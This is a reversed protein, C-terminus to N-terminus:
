KNQSIYYNAMVSDIIVIDVTGAKLQNFADLQSKLMLQEKGLNKKVIIEDGASGKEASIIADSFTTLDKTYKDADSERIVAVQNNALYPLSICMEQSREETITLGNWILDITGNTLLTEKQNWEITQFNVNLTKNEKEGLYKFVAKPLEVDFGILDGNDDNFAIPAYITIGIEVKGSNIIKEWSDDTADTLPNKTESNILLESTLGYKEAITKYETDKLAILADNIKSVFAKDEKRGAIGYQEEILVLDKVISTKTDGKGCATLSFCTAICLIAAVLTTLLKKMKKNEKYQVKLKKIQKLM